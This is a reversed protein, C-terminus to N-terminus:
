PSPALRAIFGAMAALVIETQEAHPAHGCGELMITEVPGSAGREIAELQAWRGM